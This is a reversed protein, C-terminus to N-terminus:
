FYIFQSMSHSVWPLLNQFRGLILLVLLGSAQGSLVLTVLISKSSSASSFGLWQYELGWNWCLQWFFRISGTHGRQSMGTPSPMKSTRGRVYALAGPSLVCRAKFIAIIKGGVLNWLSAKEYCFYGECAPLHHGRWFLRKKKGRWLVCVLSILWPLSKTLYSPWFHSHSWEKVGEDM